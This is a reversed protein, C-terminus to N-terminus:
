DMLYLCRLKINKDVKKLAQEVIDRWAHLEKDLDTEIVVMMEQSISSDFYSALVKM